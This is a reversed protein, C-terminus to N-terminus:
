DLYEEDDYTEWSKMRNYYKDIYSNGNEAKYDKYLEDLAERVHIPMRKETKYEHYIAMIRQRLMDKSSTMLVDINKSQELNIQLIGDLAKKTESLIDERTEKLQSERESAREAAVEESHKALLVPIKEDLVTEIEKKLEKDKKDKVNKHPKAFFNYINTVAITTAGILIIWDCIESFTM